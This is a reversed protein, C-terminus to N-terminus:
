QVQDITNIEATSIFRRQQTDGVRFACILRAPRPFSELCTSRESEGGFRVLGADLKELHDTMALDSVGAVIGTKQAILRVFAPFVIMDLTARGLVCPLSALKAAGHWGKALSM